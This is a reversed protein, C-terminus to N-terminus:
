GPVRKTFMVAVRRVLLVVVMGEIEPVEFM